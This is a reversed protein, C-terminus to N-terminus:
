SFDGIKKKGAVVKVDNGKTSFGTAYKKNFPPFSSSIVLLTYDRKNESRKYKVESRELFVMDDDTSLNEIVAEDKPYFGRNTRYNEIVNVTNEVGRETIKVTESESAAASAILPFSVASIMLVMAVLIIVDVRGFRQRQRQPQKNNKSISMTENINSM